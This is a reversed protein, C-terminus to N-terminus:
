HLAQGSYVPSPVRPYTRMVHRFVEGTKELVEEESYHDVPLGTRDDWLFDRIIIQVTDRSSEREQWHDIETIRAKLNELLEVSVRKIRRIEAGSLEPKRLLDFIALSEEDLGERRARAEEDDLAALTKFLEEFTQEVTARSKERNYDAVLKEYHNQFDTRLPNQLLLRQLKQEVVQSLEQVLTRQQKSKEFEKKLREFDIASIDYVGTERIRNSPARIEIAEDVVGHLERIIHSIDAQERDQQLSKYVIDIADRDARRANVGKANLCAKFKKFVERCMVEFRKRSEDSENAVEKCAVIAANRAFGSTTQVAALSAEREELFAKTMAVAEDLDALLEQEPRAPDRGEGPDGEGTTGAFTALAKRLHRLIGCYDVILGNNKGESVRNARAITQRKYM